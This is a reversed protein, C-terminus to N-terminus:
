SGPAIAELHAPDSVVRLVGPAVLEAHVRWTGGVPLVHVAAPPLLATLTRGVAGELLNPWDGVSRQDDVEVRCQAWGDAPGPERDGVPRCVIEARNEKARM